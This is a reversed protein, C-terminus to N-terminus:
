LIFIECFDTWLNKHQEHMYATLHVCLSLLNLPSEAPKCIHSFLCVVRFSRSVAYVPYNLARSCYKCPNSPLDIPVLFTYSIKESKGSNLLHKEQQRNTTSHNDTKLFISVIRKVCFALQYGQKAILSLPSAFETRQLINGDESTLVNQYHPPSEDTCQIYM